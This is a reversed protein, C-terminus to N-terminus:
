SGQLPAALLCTYRAGEPRLESRMLSLADATWRAATDLATGEILRGVARAEDGSAERRVRGLTLHPSFGRADPRFGLPTLAAAVSGQLAALAELDGALGVWVVRPNRNNPFCGLGEARLNLPGHGSAARTVAAAIAEQRAAPVEGLFQLTLHIGEPGTWRVAGRPAQRKLREQVGSLASRVDAPLELAVFLRLEEVM